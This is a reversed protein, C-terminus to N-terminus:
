KMLLLKKVDQFVVEGSGQKRATVRYFYMGSGFNAGNWITAYSGPDYLTNNMLTTVEQGLVNYIQLTVAVPEPLSFQITTSPNFPNPYNQELSFVKPIEGGSHITLEVRTIAPNDIRVSSKGDAMITGLMTGREADSVTIFQIGSGVGECRISVPYASSQILLKKNTLKKGSTLLEVMSNSVFRADFADTPPVPPLEFESVSRSFSSEDALYLRQVGGKRDSVVLRNFQEFDPVVFANEQKAFGSAAVILKGSQTTKVWYGKGPRISDTPSYGNAYGYYAGSVIGSPQSVISIPTIATSISGIMNWGTAVSITDRTRATGELGVKQDRYFKLWYGSGNKLTDAAYYGNKYGFAQSLATPFIDKKLSSTTVNLPFSVINWEKLVSVYFPIKQVILISKITTDTIMVSSQTKMNLNIKSGQTASDILFLTGTAKSQLDWQLTMPYGGAGSQFECLYTNMSNANETFPRYDIATPIVTPLIWRADFTGAPPKVGLQIEGLSPDLGTTANKLAGLTLTVTEAGNDTVTLNSVFEQPHKPHVTADGLYWTIFEKVSDLGTAMYEDDIFDTNGLNVYLGSSDKFFAVDYPSLFTEEESFRLFVTANFNTSGIAKAVYYRKVYISDPMEPSLTNPVSTLMVHTPTTGGPYFRITTAPSEFRYTSTSGNAIARKVTGGHFYGKGFIAATDTTVISVTDTGRVVLPANMSIYKNIFVNGSTSVRSSDTLSMHSFTGKITGGSNLTLTSNAQIFNGNTNIIFGGGSVIDTRSSAEVEFRGDLTIGNSVILESVGSGLVLQAGTGINLSAINIRQATHRITARRSTAPIYVSDSFGPVGQPQWNREENWLSDINGTWKRLPLPSLASTLVTNGQGCAFILAGTTAPIVQVNFLTNTTGSSQSNWTNGGDTSGYIVGYDGVTWGHVGNYMAVDILWDSSIGDGVQMQQWTTGGDTTRLMTGFDGSVFVTNQDVIDLSYLPYNINSEQLTWNDGGDTTKMITGESGVAWGINRNFFKIKQLDSGVDTTEHMWVLGGNTTRLIIGFTSGCAWGYTGDVFYVSYLPLMDEELGSTQRSFNVGNGTKLILGSDGVVWGTNENLFMVGYMWLYYGLDLKRWSYGGDTTKLCAGEEGVSYGTTTSAFYTQSMETKPETSLHIWTSGGNTTKFITGFDGVAWGVNANAFRIHFFDKYTDVNEFMEWSSGGDISKLIMGFSGAVYAVTSSVFHAAWLTGFGLNEVPLWSLGGDNTKYILGYDGSIIGTTSNFFSMGYLFRGTPSTLSQWNTGGNTTKLIKGGSGVAYGTNGDLFQITWLLANTSSTQAIWNTGGNTTKLITGFEGCAWGTLSNIFNISYIFASTPTQQQSWSVGGNTTKLIIGNEGAVWGISGNFFHLAHFEEAAGNLNNDVNWTQGGNGSSMFTGSLGCAVLTDSNVVSIENLINGQPLPSVWQWSTQQSYQLSIFTFLLISTYFIRKM